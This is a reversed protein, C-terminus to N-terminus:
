RVVRPWVAHGIATDVDLGPAATAAKVEVYLRHDDKEAVIDM